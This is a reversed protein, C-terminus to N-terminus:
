TLLIILMCVPFSLNAIRSPASLPQEKRKIWSRINGAVCAILWIATATSLLALHRIILWRADLNGSYGIYIKLAFLPLFVTAVGAYNLIM